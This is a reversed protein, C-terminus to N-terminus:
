YSWEFMQKSWIRFKLLRQLELGSLKSFSNILALKLKVPCKFNLLLFTFVVHFQSPVPAIRVDRSLKFLSKSTTFFM